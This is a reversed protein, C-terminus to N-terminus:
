SKRGKGNKMLHVVIQNPAYRAASFVGDPFFNKPLCYVRLYSLLSVSPSKSAKDFYMARYGACNTLTFILHTPRSSHLTRASVYDITFRLKRNGALEGLLDRGIRARGDKIVVTNFEKRM